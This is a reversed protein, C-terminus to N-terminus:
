ITCMLPLLFMCQLLQVQLLLDIARLRGGAPIIRSWPRRRRRLFNRRSRKSHLCFLDVLYSLRCSVFSSFARSVDKRENCVISVVLSIPDVKVTFIRSALDMTSLLRGKCEKGANGCSGRRACSPELINGYIPVFVTWHLPSHTLHM